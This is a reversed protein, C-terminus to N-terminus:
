KPTMEKIYNKGMMLMWDNLVHEQREGRSVRLAMYVRQYTRRWRQIEKKAWANVNGHFQGHHEECLDVQFGNAISVKRVATGHYVEHREASKKKCYFCEREKKGKYGNYKRKKGEAEARIINMLAYECYRRDDEKM